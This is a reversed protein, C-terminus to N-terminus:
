FTVDRDKTKKISHQRAVIEMRPEDVMATLREAVSLLDRKMLRVPVVATIAALAASMVNPIKTRTDPFARVTPIASRHPFLDMEGCDFAQQETKFDHNQNATAAQSRDPRFPNSRENESNLHNRDELLVEEAYREATDEITTYPRSAM